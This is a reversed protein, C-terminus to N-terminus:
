KEGELYKNKINFILAMAEVKNIAIKAIEYYRSLEKKFVIWEIKRLEPPLEKFSPIVIVDYIAAEKKGEHRRIVRGIRQIHERPNGSSAMFIANRAPPVDVGEDLCKMAVLVQYKREAFKKLIFDRESLGNYKKHPKVGEEMTFRHSILNKKNVIKMAGDIQQPSCYIITWNIASNIENLIEEVARYKTAANKIIDARKFLLNELYKEKEEDKKAKNLNMIIAKTKEIYDILEQASLSVFKPIYRYPTLYSEETDPKETYIAKELGFEYIVDGFYEYLLKTGTDDFWRKPTASLGLRQDYDNILGRRRIEAGLGHVEDAILFLESEGKNHRIINVFDDSSFTAHTTLILIINKYGLSIDILSDALIKKWSPNSSDAIIIDGYEIGFKNIERKWQQILHNYPCTIITAFKRDLKLSENLCALATFTKGTGTAMEFIGRFGNQNWAKVAEKQYEYLSFDKKKSKIKEYWHNLNIRSIDTPAIEILKNEIATPIKITKVKKANNNWYSEFKSIDEKVYDNEGSEWNRFVKFEEINDLWGKASENISGSFSIINSKNDKLIGVKQHFIGCKESEEYDLFKNKEDKIIAVRIELKKNAVMWGLAYVHDRICENEFQELEILMKEEIFKDPESNAKNIINLDNKSLKPSIILKMIGNNKILNYIGRAAIALSTSSFFGALRNYEISNDLAPIYFNQLIDDYDSSYAKKLSLLRLNIESNM